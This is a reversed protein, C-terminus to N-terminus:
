ISSSQVLPVLQLLGCGFARGRGIGRRFSHQFQEPDTVDLVGQVTAQSLTVSRQAKDKFQLAQIRDIQLRRPSVAFGWSKSAREMFWDSVSEHGKVPVLKRSASDRRTPNVIVKFRYRGHCLFGDPIARSRVVGHRGDVSSAPARDSLLLITRQHFDGGQDAYLIGSSESGAKQADSRVDEFLSYVVRHVSYADTIRLAKVATRDLQLISAILNM